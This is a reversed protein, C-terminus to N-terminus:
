LSSEYDGMLKRFVVKFTVFVHLLLFIFLRFSFESSSLNM